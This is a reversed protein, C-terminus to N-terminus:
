NGRREFPLWALSGATPGDPRYEIGVHGAYGALQLKELHRGLDLEGTGPQHRGPADAIQVHGVRPTHESIVADLDEGNVALHYLDALLRVNALGLEDLVAVADAATKLPHSPAGSLPELVVQAGIGAAAEAAAALQVLALEDQESPAVGEIRNGYLANFSRCGLREAIGLASTLGVAFEAERGVWSVLGREGAAMDGAFLNLGTLRVGAREISRVFAEVEEPRPDAADFPWWFEVDTFGAARAAPARELLPLETFLISLNATYPLSHRGGDPGTM